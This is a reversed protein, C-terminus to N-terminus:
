GAEGRRAFALMVVDFMPRRTMGWDPFSRTEIARRDLEVVGSHRPDARILDYLPLVREAPGELIQCIKRDEIALIGTIDREGNRRASHDVIAEVDHAGTEAALTSAYTLRIMAADHM